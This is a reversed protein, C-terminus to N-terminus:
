FAFRMRISGVVQGESQEEFEKSLYTLGYFASVGTESRWSVGARVRERTGSM